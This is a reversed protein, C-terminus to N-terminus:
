RPCNGLDDWSLNELREVVSCVCVCVCVGASGSKKPEAKTSPSSCSTVHPTNGGPEFTDHDDTTTMILTQTM